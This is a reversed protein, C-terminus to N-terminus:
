DPYIEVRETDSLYHVVKELDGFNIILEATLKGNEDKMMYREVYGFLKTEKEAKDLDIINQIYLEPELSLLYDYEKQYEPLPMATKVEEDNENETIKTMTKSQTNIRYVADEEYTENGAQIDFSYGDPYVSVDVVLARKGDVYQRIKGGERDTTGFLKELETDIEEGNYYTYGEFDYEWDDEGTYFRYVERLDEADRTIIAGGDGNVKGTYDPSLNAWIYINDKTAIELPYADSGNTGRNGDKVQELIGQMVGDFSIEKLKPAYTQYFESDEKYIRRTVSNSLVNQGKYNTLIYEGDPLGTGMDEGNFRYKWYRKGYITGTSISVTSEPDGLVSTLFNPKEVTKYLSVSNYKTDTALITSEFQEASLTSESVIDTKEWLANESAIYDYLNYGGVLVLVAVFLRVTILWRSKLLDNPNRRFFTFGRRKDLILARLRRKHWSMNRHTDDSRNKVKLKCDDNTCWYETFHVTEWRFFHTTTNGSRESFLIRRRRYQGDYRRLAAGCRPCYSMGTRLAENYCNQLYTHGWRRRAQRFLGCLMLVVAGPVYLIFWPGIVGWFVKENLMLYFLLPFVLVLVGLIIAYKKARAILRSNDPTGVKEKIKRM